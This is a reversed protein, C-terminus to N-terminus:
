QNIIEEIDSSSMPVSCFKFFNDMLPYREELNKCSANNELYLNDLFFKAFSEKVALVNEKFNETEEQVGFVIHLVDISLETCSKTSEMINESPLYSSRVPFWINYILERCFENLLLKDTCNNILPENEIEFYWKLLKKISDSDKPIVRCFVNKLRIKPEYYDPGYMFILVKNALDFQLTKIWVDLFHFDQRFYNRDEETTLVQDMFKKLMEFNDDQILKMFIAKGQSILDKKGEQLNEQNIILKLAPLDFTKFFIHLLHFSFRKLANNSLDFPPFRAYIREIIQLHLNNAPEISLKFDDLFMFIMEIMRHLNLHALVHDLLPICFKQFPKRRLFMSILCPFNHLVFGHKQVPNMKNILFLTIKFSNGKECKIIFRRGSQRELYNYQEANDLRRWFSVFAKYFCLSQCIDLMETIPKTVIETSTKVPNTMVLENNNYHGIVIKMLTCVIDFNNELQLPRYYMIKSIYEMQNIVIYEEQGFFCALHQILSLNKDCDGREIPTHRFRNMWFNRFIKDEDIEGRETWYIKGAAEYGLDLDHMLYMIWNLREKIMELLKEEIQMKILGPVAWNGLKQSPMKLIELSLKELRFVYQQSLILLIHRPIRVSSVSKTISSYRWDPVNADLVIEMKRRMDSSEMLYSALAVVSLERLSPFDLEFDIDLEEM